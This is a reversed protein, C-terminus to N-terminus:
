GELMEDDDMGEEYGGVDHEAQEEEPSEAAEHAEGHQKALWYLWGCLQDADSVEGDEAMGEVIGHIDEWAMGKLYDFIGEKIAAPMSDLQGLMQEVTDDSPQNEHNLAEAIEQAATELEPASEYLADIFDSFGEEDQVEVEDGEEEGEGEGVDGDILDDNMEIDDGVDAKKFAALGEAGIAM